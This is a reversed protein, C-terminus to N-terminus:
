IVSSTRLLELITGFCLILLIDPFLLLSKLECITITSEFHFSFKLWSHQWLLMLIHVMHHIEWLVNKNGLNLHMAWNNPIRSIRKPGAHVRSALIIQFVSINTMKHKPMMNSCNTVDDTIQNAYYLIIFMEPILSSIVFLFVGDRIM